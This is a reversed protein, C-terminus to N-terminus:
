QGGGMLQQTFFQRLMEEDPIYPQVTQGISGAINHGTESQAAQRGVGVATAQLTPSLVARAPASALIRFAGYAGGVAVAAMPYTSAGAAAGAIGAGKMGTSYLVSNLLRRSRDAVKGATQWGSQGAAAGTPPTINGLAVHLEALAHRQDQSFLSDMLEPNRDMFRTLKRYVAGSDNGDLLNAIMGMRFKAVADSDEGLNRIMDASARAATKSGSRTALNMVEDAIAAGPITEDDLIQKLKRNNGVSLAEHVLERGRNYIDVYARHGIFEGRAVSDNVFRDVTTVLDDLASQDTANAARTRLGRAKVRLQDITKLSIEDPGKAALEDIANRFAHAAPTGEPSIPIPQEGRGARVDDYGVRAAYQLRGSPNDTFRFDSSTAQKMDARGLDYRSQVETKLAEQFDHGARESTLNQTGTAERARETVQGIQEGRGVNEIEDPNRIARGAAAMGGAVGTGIAASTGVNGLSFDSTPERTAAEVGSYTAAEGMARPVTTAGGKFPSPTLISGAIEAPMGGGVAGERALELYYQHVRRGFEYDDTGEEGFIMNGLGSAVGGTGLTVANQFLTGSGAPHMEFLQAARERAARDKEPPYSDPRHPGSMTPTRTQQPGETIQPTTPGETTQQMPTFGGGDEAPRVPTFAQQERIAPGVSQVPTPQPTSVPPEEDLPRTGLPRFIDPM